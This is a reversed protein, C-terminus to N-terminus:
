RQIRCRQYAYFDSYRRSNSVSNSFINPQSDPTWIPDIISFFWLEVIEHQQVELYVLM